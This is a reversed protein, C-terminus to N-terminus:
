KVCRGRDISRVRTDIMSVRRAKRTTSASSDTSSQEPNSEAGTISQRAKAHDKDFSEDAEQSESQRPGTLEKKVM